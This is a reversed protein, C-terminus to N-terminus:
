AAPRVVENPEEAEVLEALITRVQEKVKDSRQRKYIEVVRPLGAQTFHSMVETPTRKAPPFFSELEHVKASRLASTLQADTTSAEVALFTRFYTTLFAVSAGVHRFSSPPPSPHIDARSAASTPSTPKGDKVLHDKQLSTLLSHTAIDESVFMASAVALKDQEPQPWKYTLITKLTVDDFTKLLYKLRAGHHM